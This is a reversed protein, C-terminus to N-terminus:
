TFPDTAARILSGTIFFHNNNGSRDTAFTTVIDLPDLSLYFTPPSGTPVSGDLGLDIPIDFTANRFKAINAPDSVDIHTSLDVWIEALDIEYLGFPDTGDFGPAGIAIGPWTFHSNFSAGSDVQLINGWKTVNITAGTGTNGTMSMPNSPVALSYCGGNQQLSFNTVAGGGGVVLPALQAAIEFTGGTLTTLGAPDLGTATYGTGGSAITFTIIQVRFKGDIALQGIRSGPAHGTDWSFIAHHWLGDFQHDGPRHVDDYIYQATGFLAPQLYVEWQGSAIVNISLFNAANVDPLGSGNLSSMCFINPAVHLSTSKYWFSVTGTPSDVATALATSRYLMTDTGNFHVARTGLLPGPISGTASLHVPGGDLFMSNRIDFGSM